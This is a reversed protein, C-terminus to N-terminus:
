RHKLRKVLPKIWPCVACVRIKLREKKSMASFARRNEKKLIEKYRGLRYLLTIRNKDVTQKIVEHYQYHTEQDLCLFMAEMKKYFAEFRADSENTRRTWSNETQVRYASMCDKLYLMGGRLAGQIQSVYDVFFIKTYANEVWVGSRVMLSNTAVFGGGGAIVQEVTFVTDCDAPTVNGVREGDREMYAAHASIDVEPHAEMADYQKQLKFPDTWYDDGECVALYRGRARPFQFEFGIDKGRSYQNEQQILPKIIDPYKEEFEKIIAVSGDTSADDHVLVEFLFDTKQMVFSELAARLYKEHNYVNCIVSVAIESM